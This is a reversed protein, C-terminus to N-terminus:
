TSIMYVLYQKEEVKELVEDNRMKDMWSIDEMQKWRDGVGCRL